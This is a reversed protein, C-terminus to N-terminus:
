DPTQMWRLTASTLAGGVVCPIGFEIQGAVAAGICGLAIVSEGIQGWGALQRRYNPGKRQLQEIAALMGKRLRATESTEAAEIADKLAPAADEPLHQREAWKLLALIEPDRAANTALTYKAMSGITLREVRDRNKSWPLFSIVRAVPAYSGTALYYGWYLDILDPSPELTPGKPPDPFFYKDVRVYSWATEYWRPEQEVVLSELTPLKGALFHEIMVRRAPLRDAYRRLLDRWHPLGSYAIARVVFWQDEVPLPLAKAIITDAAAPAAALAGALFGVFVGTSEPDRLAGLQSAAKVLAPVGDPNPKHRYVWMWGLLADRSNLETLKPARGASAPTVALALLLALVYRM